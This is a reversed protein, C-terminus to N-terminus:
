KRHEEEKRHEEDKREPKGQFKQHQSEV